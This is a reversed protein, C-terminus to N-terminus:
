GPYFTDTLMLYCPTPRSKVVVSRRWAVVQTTAVGTGTLPQGAALIGDQRTL